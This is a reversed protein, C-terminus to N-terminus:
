YELRTFHRGCDGINSCKTELWNHKKQNPAPTLVKLLHSRSFSMLQTFPPHGKINITLGLKWSEKRTLRWIFLCGWVGTATAALWKQWRHRGQWPSSYVWVMLRFLNRISIWDIGTVYYHSMQSHKDTSSFMHPPLFVGSLGLSHTYSIRTLSRPDWPTSFLWSGWYTM